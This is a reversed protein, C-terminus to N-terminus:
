GAQTPLLGFDRGFLDFASRLAVILREAASVAPAARDIRFRVYGHMAIHRFQRLEDLDDALDAALAPRNASARTIILLLDEHWRQGVPRPEGALDLIGLAAQEFSSYADQFAKQFALEVM